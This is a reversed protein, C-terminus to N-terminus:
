RLVGIGQLIQVISAIFGTGGATITAGKVVRARTSSIKRAPLQNRQTVQNVSQELDPLFPSKKISNLEAMAERHHSSLVVAHQRATDIKAQLDALERNGVANMLNPGVAEKLATWAQQVEPQRFPARAELVEIFSERDSYNM